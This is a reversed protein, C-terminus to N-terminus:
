QAEQPQTVPALTVPTLTAPGGAHDPLERKTSHFWNAAYWMTADVNAFDVQGGEDTATNEGIYIGNGAEPGFFYDGWPMRGDWIIDPIPTGTIQAILEGIENDPATGGEGIRNGHVHIGQPFPFYNEDEYENPYAVILVNTTGNGAIENGFVEVNRNAMVMIGTGTPVEGVINGEPAFNGTDNNVVRNDLVRISHGGQQPLGPLDFILIGGTNHEATNGFVDAYYSNEIEIGAVNYAARSNKVIIHQSQGVYIGADSAGIATCNDILVNKSSVPYLGYAGNTEKPGDTWETRLRRMTIGDAGMIKIADGKADEIAFDELTVGSSTVRLGESGAEQNKFSLITKEPGAGKLTVNDIDLSLGDTLAFTGEPLLLTDGPEALILATQLSEQASMETGSLDLAHTAAEAGASFAALTLSLAALGAFLKMKLRPMM